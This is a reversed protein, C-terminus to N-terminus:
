FNGVRFPIEWISQFEEIQKVAESGMKCTVIVVSANCCLITILSESVLNSQEGLAEGSVM